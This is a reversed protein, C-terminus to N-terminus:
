KWLEESHQETIPELELRPTTLSPQDFSIAANQELWDSKKIQYVVSTNLDGSVPTAGVDTVEIGGIKLMAGRSRHNNRGVVFYATKVFQFAYSMMLWKLERNFTGGWCDRTLFTFGIEVSSNESNYDTYRSSGVIRGSKLDIIALAGMSDVGSRFYVEFRERTYRLHDPHLEWILPDSAAFFLTEFDKETLPRLRILSGILTPQWHISTPSPIKAPRKDHEANSASDFDTKM